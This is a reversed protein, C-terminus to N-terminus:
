YDFLDHKKMINFVKNEIRGLELNLKKMPMKVEKSIAKPPQMMCEIGYRLRFIKETREDFVAEDLIVQLQENILDILKSDITM